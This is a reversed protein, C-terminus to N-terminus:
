SDNDEYLLGKHEELLCKVEIKLRQLGIGIANLPNRIEHAISAATWGLAAEERQSSLSKKM